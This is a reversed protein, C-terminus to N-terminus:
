ATLVGKLTAIFTDYTRIDQQKDALWDPSHNQPPNDLEAQLLDRKVEYGNLQCLLEFTYASPHTSLHSM